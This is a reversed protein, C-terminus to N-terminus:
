SLSLLYYRSFNINNCGMVANFLMGKRKQKHLLWPGINSVVSSCNSASMRYWVSTRSGLKRKWPRCKGIRKPLNSSHM